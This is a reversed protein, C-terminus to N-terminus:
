RMSQILVVPVFLHDLQRTFTLVMDDGDREIMVPSGDALLRAEGDLFVEKVKIKSGSLKGLVMLYLNNDKTTFRIAEGTETVAAKIMIDLAARVPKLSM